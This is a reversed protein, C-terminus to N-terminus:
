SVYGDDKQEQLRGTFLLRDLARGTGGRRRVKFPNRDGPGSIEKKQKPIWSDLM